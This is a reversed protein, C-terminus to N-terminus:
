RNLGGSLGRRNRTAPPPSLCHGSLPFGSVQSDAQADLYPHSSMADTPPRGLIALGVWSLHFRNAGPEPKGTRTAFNQGRGDIGDDVWGEGIVPPLHRGRTAPPPNVAASLSVPYRFIPRPISFSEPRLDRGDPILYPNEPEAGPEPFRGEASGQIRPGM